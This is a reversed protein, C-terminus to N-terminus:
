RLALHQRDFIRPRAPTVIGTHDCAASALKDGPVPLRHSFVLVGVPALADGTQTGGLAEADGLLEPSLYQQPIRGPRVRCEPPRIEQSVHAEGLEEASGTCGAARSSSVASAATRARQPRQYTNPACATM